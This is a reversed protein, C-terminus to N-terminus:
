VAISSHASTPSGKVTHIHQVTVTISYGVNHLLYSTIVAPYGARVKIFNGRTAIAPCKLLNIPCM